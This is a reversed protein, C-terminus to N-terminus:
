HRQEMAPEGNCFTEVPIHPFHKHIAEMEKAISLQWNSSYSDTGLVIQCNHRMLM